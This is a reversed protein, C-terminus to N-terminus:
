FMKKNGEFNNGLCEGWRWDAMRKAVKVALKVVARQAQYRAYTGIEERYGNRFATRKAAVVRGVENWWESGKRRQRGVRRMGCVDNTCEM